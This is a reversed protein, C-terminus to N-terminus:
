FTLPSLFTKCHFIELAGTFRFTAAILNTEEEEEAGARSSSSPRSTAALAEARNVSIQELTTKM